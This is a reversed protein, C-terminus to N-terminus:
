WVWLGLGRERCLGGTMELFKGSFGWLVADRTHVLRLKLVSFLPYM